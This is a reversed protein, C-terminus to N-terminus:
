RQKNIQKSQIVCLVFTWAEPPIRVRLGLLRAAVATRRLRRFLLDSSHIRSLSQGARPQMEEHLVQM